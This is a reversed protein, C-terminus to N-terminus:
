GPRVARRSWVMQCSQGKSRSRHARSIQTRHTSWNLHTWIPRHYYFSNRSYLINKIIQGMVRRRLRGRTESIIKYYIKHQREMRSSTKWHKLSIMGRKFSLLPPLSIHYITPYHMSCDIRRSNTHLNYCRRRCCARKIIVPSQHTSSHPRKWRPSSPRLSPHKRRYNPRRLTRASVPPSASPSAYSLTKWTKPIKTPELKKNRCGSNIKASSRM